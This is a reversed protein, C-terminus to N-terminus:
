FMGQFLRMKGECLVISESKEESMLVVKEGQNVLFMNKMEIVYYDGGGM